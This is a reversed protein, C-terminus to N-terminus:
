FGLHAGHEFRAFPLRQAMRELIIQLCDDVQRTAGVNRNTRNIHSRFEVNGLRRDRLGNCVEFFFAVGHLGIIAVDRKGFLAVLVPGRNPATMIQQEAEHGLRNADIGFGGIVLRALNFM